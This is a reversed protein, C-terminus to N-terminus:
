PASLILHVARADDDRRVLPGRVDTLAERMESLLRHRGHAHDDHIGRGVGERPVDHRFEGADLVPAVFTPDARRGCRARDSDCVDRFLDHREDIVVCVGLRLPELLQQTRVRVLAHPAHPAARAVALGVFLVLSDALDAQQQGVTPQGSEEGGIGATVDVTSWMSPAFMDTRILVTRASPPM